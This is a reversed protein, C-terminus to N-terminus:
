TKMKSKMKVIKQIDYSKISERSGCKSHDEIIKAINKLRQTFNNTKHEDKNLVSDFFNSYFLNPNKLNYSNKRINSHILDLKNLHLHNYNENKNNIIDKTSNNNIILNNIRFNKVSNMRKRNSFLSVSRMSSMMDLISMNDKYTNHYSYSSDNESFNENNKLKEIQINLMKNLKKRNIPSVNFSNYKDLFSNQIDNTSKYFIKSEKIKKIPLSNTRNYKIKHRQSYDFFQEHFFDFNNIKKKINKLLSFNEVIEISLSDFSSKKIITNNEKINSDLKNKINNPSDYNLFMLISNPYKKKFSGLSENDNLIIHSNIKSYNNIDKPIIESYLKENNNIKISQEFPFSENNIEELSYHYNSSFTRTEKKSTNTESISDFICKIPKTIIITKKSENTKESKNSNSSKESDSTILCNEFYSKDSTITSSNKLSKSDLSNEDEEKISNFNDNGKLIISNKYEENSKNKEEEKEENEEKEEEEKEEDENEEIEIIDDDNEESPISQLELNQKNKKLSNIINNENILKNGNHSDIKYYNNENNCNKNKGEHYILFFNLTKNILREIQEMNFLSKKIIKRWIKPFSMSIEVAVTKKLLLLECNKSKVIVRLPSKKNLFMLIDGFHENKRIEIIKIYQNQPKIEKSIKKMFINEKIEEKTPVEIENPIINNSLNKIPLINESLNYIKPSNRITQIKQLTDNKIIVPIPIELSLKGKKVFIVQDIYDGENVLIENKEVQIPELALVVKIIFDSNNFNKFFIFNDIVDKYMTIIVKNRLSLPLNDIIDHKLTKENNLKYLLYKSIKEYFEHSMNNHHVKINELIEINKNYEIYKSDTKQIYNSLASIFFSYIIIGVVLLILNFFREYNSITIIDGYGVTSITTFIYYLSSIYISYKDKDIELNNAYIWNPYDLQSLYIFICSLLHLIVFFIFLIMYLIFWKILLDGIKRINLHIQEIFSNHTFTKFLKFVRILQFLQFLNFSNKTYSYYILNTKKYYDIIRFISNLPIGGIFNITFCGKLYNKIILKNNTILQDDFNYYATFFGIFLDCFFFYDTIFDMISIKSLLNPTQNISFAFHFPSIIIAYISLFFLFMDNIILFFGNPNIYFTGEENEELNEEDSLSDYVNNNKKILRRFQIENIIKEDKDLKIEDIKNEIINDEEEKYKKEKRIDIISKKNKNKNKNENKNDYIILSEKLGQIIDNFHNLSKRNLNLFYRINNHEYKQNLIYTKLKRKTRKKNKEKIETEDSYINNSKNDLDENLKTSSYNYTKIKSIPIDNLNTINDNLKKFNIGKEDNSTNILLTNSDDNNEKINNLDVLSNLDLKEKTFSIKKKNSLSHSKSFKKKSNHYNNKIMSNMSKNLNVNMSKIKYILNRGSNVSSDNKESNKKYKFFHKLKKKEDGINNKEEKEIDLHSVIPSKVNRDSDIGELFSQSNSSYNNLNNKKLKKLQEDIHFIEKDEPDVNILFDSLLHKINLAADSLTELTQSKIDYNKHPQYYTYISSKKRPIIKVKDSNKKNSKITSISRKFTKLITNQSNNNKNQKINDIKNITPNMKSISESSKKKM